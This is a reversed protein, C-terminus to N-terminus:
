TRTLICVGAIIVLIGAIRMLSLNEGLLWYAAVATAIYGLSALPYALSVDTRSLVLLWVALSFVYCFLGSIFFPNFAVKFGIPLLNHWTFTFAGIRNMTEKLLLQAVTNLIVSFLILPIVINM